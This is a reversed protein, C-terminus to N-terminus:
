AKVELKNQPSNALGSATVSTIIHTLHTYIAHVELNYKMGTIIVAISINQKQM